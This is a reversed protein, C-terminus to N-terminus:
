QAFLDGLVYPGLSVVTIYIYISLYKVQPLCSWNKIWAQMANNKKDNQCCCENVIERVFIDYTLLQLHFLAINLYDVTYGLLIQFRSKHFLRYTCSQINYINSTTAM